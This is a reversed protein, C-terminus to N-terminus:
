DRRIICVIQTLGVRGHVVHQQAHIGFRHPGIRVAHLHRGILEKQPRGLLHVRGERFLSLRHRPRLFNGIADVNIEIELRSMERHELRRFPQGINLM